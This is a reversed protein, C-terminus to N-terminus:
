KEPFAVAVGFDGGDDVRAGQVVAEAALADRGVAHVWADHGRVQLASVTAEKANNQLVRDIPVYKERGENGEGERRKGEGKADNDGGGGM